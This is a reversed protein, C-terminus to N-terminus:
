DRVLVPDIWVGRIPLDLSPETEVLLTLKRADRVSAALTRPPDMSSVLESRAVPRGDALVIFRLSALPLTGPSAGVDAVFTRVGDPLDFSLQSGVRQELRPLDAAGDSGSVVRHTPFLGALNGGTSKLATLQAVRHGGLRLEHVESPQLAIRGNVLHDVMLKGEHVTASSADFRSGDALTLLRDARLPRSPRLWISQVEAGIRFRRLGFLVSSITAQGDRISSLEGAFFDGNGLIAGPEGPPSSSAARDSFIFEAIAALAVVREAGDDGRLRLTRGDYALFERVGFRAGNEFILGSSLRPEPANGIRLRLVEALAVKVPPGSRPNLVVRDSEFRVTGELSKGDITVLVDARLSGTVALLALLRLWHCSRSSVDRALM